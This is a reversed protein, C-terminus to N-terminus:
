KYLDKEISLFLAVTQNDVCWFPVDFIAMGHTEIKAANDLTIIIKSHVSAAPM